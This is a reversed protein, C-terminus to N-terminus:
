ALSASQAVLLTDTSAARSNRKDRMQTRWVRARAECVPRRPGKAKWGPVETYAINTYINYLIIRFRGEGGREWFGPHCNQETHGCQAWDRGGEPGAPREWGELRKNVGRDRREKKREGNGRPKVRVSAQNGGGEEKRPGRERWRRPSMSQSLYKGEGRWVFFIIIVIVTCDICYYYDFYVNM